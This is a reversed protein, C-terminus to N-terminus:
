RALEPRSILDEYAERVAILHSGASAMTTVLCGAEPKAPNTQRIETINRVNVAVPAHANANADDKLTLLLFM